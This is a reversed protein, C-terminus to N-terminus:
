EAVEFETRIAIVGAPIDGKKDPNGHTILIFNFNTADPYSAVVKEREMDKLQQHFEDTESVKGYRTTIELKKM